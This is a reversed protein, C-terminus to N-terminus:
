LIKSHALRYIFWYRWRFYTVAIPMYTTRYALEPGYNEPYFSLGDNGLFSNFRHYVLLNGFITKSRPL